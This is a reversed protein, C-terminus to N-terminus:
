RLPSQFFNKNFCSWNLPMHINLTYSNSHMCQNKLILLCQQGLLVLPYRHACEYVCVSQLSVSKPRFPDIKEMIQDWNCCINTM